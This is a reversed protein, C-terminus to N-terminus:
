ARIFRSASAYCERLRMGNWDYSYGFRLGAQVAAYDKRVNTVFSCLAPVNSTEAQM